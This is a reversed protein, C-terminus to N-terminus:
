HAVDEQFYEFIGMIHKRLFPDTVSNNSVVHQNYKFRTMKQKRKELFIEKFISSTQIGSKRLSLIASFQVYQLKAHARQDSIVTRQQHHWALIEMITRSQPFGENLIFINCLSKPDSYYIPILGELNPFYM